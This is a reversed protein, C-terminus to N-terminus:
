AAMLGWAPLPTSTAPRLMAEFTVAKGMEIVPKYSEV